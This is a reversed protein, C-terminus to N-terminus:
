PDHQQPAASTSPEDTRQRINRRQYEVPSEFYRTYTVGARDMMRSLSTVTWTTFRRSQDPLGEGQTRPPAHCSAHPMEREEDGGGPAVLAEEAVGGACERGLLRFFPHRQERRPLPAM